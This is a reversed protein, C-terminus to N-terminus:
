WKQESGSYKITTLVHGSVRHTSPLYKGFLCLIKNFDIFLQNTGQSRLVRGQLPCQFSSNTSKMRCTKLSLTVFM